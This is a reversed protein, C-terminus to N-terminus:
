QRLGHDAELQKILNLLEGEPIQSDIARLAAEVGQSSSYLRGLIKDM